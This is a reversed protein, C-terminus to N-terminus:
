CIHVIQVPQSVAPSYNVSIQFTSGDSCGVYLLTDSRWVSVTVNFQGELNVTGVVSGSHFDIFLLDSGASASTLWHGSPSVVVSTLVSKQIDSVTWINRFGNAISMNFPM